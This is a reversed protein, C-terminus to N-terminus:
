CGFLKFHLLTKALVTSQSAQTMSIANQLCEYDESGEAKMCKSRNTNSFLPRLSATFM